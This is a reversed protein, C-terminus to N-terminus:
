TIFVNNGSAIIQPNISNYSTSNSLNMKEEFTIGSDNCSRLIEQIM